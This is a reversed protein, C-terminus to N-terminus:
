WSGGPPIEESPFPVVIGHKEALHRNIVEYVDSVELKNLETTSKKDYMAVQVPRWILEKVLHENWPIEADHKLTAMVNLGADNLAESMHRCFLHLARNQPPTRTGM